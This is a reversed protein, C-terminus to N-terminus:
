PHDSMDNQDLSALTKRPSRTLRSRSSSICDCRSSAASCPRSGPPANPETKRAPFGAAIELEDSARRAGRRHRTRSAGAESSCSGTPQPPATTPARWRRKRTRTGGRRHARAADVGRRRARAGANGSSATCRRVTFDIGVVGELIWVEAAQAGSRLPSGLQHRDGVAAADVQGVAGVVIHLFRIALVNRAPGEASPSLGARPRRSM